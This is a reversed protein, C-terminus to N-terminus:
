FFVGSLIVVAIVIMVAATISATKVLRIAKLVDESEPLRCDENIVYHGKKVLRVGLAGAAASMTWGANPSETARHWRFMVALAARGSLDRGLSASIILLWAAIRAPIFNLVDDLRAAFKGLWEYKETRYGMMSDCTNVFRYSVAAAPGGILFFIWPAVISDTLNESISEIVAAAIENESLTSTDRSVLHYATRRQAERLEGAELAENVTYAAASLGSISFTSKILYVTFVAALLKLALSASATSYFITVFAAAASFVLAGSLVLLTGSLFRFVRVQLRDAFELGKRIFSGMGAVPHISSPYEGILIDFLVAVIFLPWIFLTDFFLPM